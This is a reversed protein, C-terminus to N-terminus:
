RISFFMYGCERCRWDFEIVRLFTDDDASEVLGKVAVTPGPSSDIQRKVVRRVVAPHQYKVVLDALKKDIRVKNFDPM